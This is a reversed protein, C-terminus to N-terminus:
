LFNVIYRNDDIWIDKSFNKIQYESTWVVPVKHFIRKGDVIEYNKNVANKTGRIPKGDFTKFYNVDKLYAHYQSKVDTDDQTLEVMCAEQVDVMDESRGIAKLNYIHDLIDQMVEDDARVHLVLEIGTLEEIHLPISEFTRYNKKLASLREKEEKLGELEKELAIYEESKAYERKKINKEKKEDRFAKIKEKVSKQKKSVELFRTRIKRWEKYAEMNIIEIGDGALMSANKRKARAIKVHANSITGAPFLALTGRDDMFTNLVTMNKYLRKNKHKYDGQISVDMPHYEQYGCAKHLAGIITSPQPLPFTMKNHVTEPRGYCAKSQKVHIRIVKM